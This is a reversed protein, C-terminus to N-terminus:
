SRRQTEERSPRAQEVVDRVITYGLGGLRGVPHLKRADVLGDAMMEDAAHALVIEGIVFTTDGLPVEQYLRCELHVHSEAVRPARVREAPAATLGTLAFESVQSAWEGSTRVMRLLLAEDVVNVVFDGTERLNRLTDKPEGARHNISIGILPPKSALPVYYSFPAVNTIGTAGITSVFAIPRPVIASIMFRYMAGPTLEAPDINM